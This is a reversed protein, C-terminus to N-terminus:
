YFSSCWCVALAAAAACWRRSCFWLIIYSSFLHLQRSVKFFIAVEFFVLDINFPVDFSFFFVRLLFWISYVHAFRKITHTHTHTLTRRRGNARLIFLHLFLKVKHEIRLRIVVPAVVFCYCMWNVQQAKKMNNKTHFPTKRRDNGIKIKTKKKIKGKM